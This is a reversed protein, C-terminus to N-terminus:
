PLYFCRLDSLQNNSYLFVYGRSYALEGKDVLFTAKCYKTEKEIYECGEIYSVPGDEAMAGLVISIDSAMSFVGNKVETVAECKPYDAHNVEHQNLLINLASFGEKKEASSDNKNPAIVACSVLFMYLPMIAFKM